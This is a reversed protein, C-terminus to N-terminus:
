TVILGTKIEAVSKLIPNAEERGKASSSHQSRALRLTPCRLSAVRAGLQLGLSAPTTSVSGRDSEDCPRKARGVPSGEPRPKPIPKANIFAFVGSQRLGPYCGSLPELPAKQPCRKKRCNAFLPPALVWLAFGRPSRSPLARLTRAGVRLRPMLANFGSPTRPLLAGGTTIAAGFASRKLRLL